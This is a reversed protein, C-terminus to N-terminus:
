SKLTSRYWAYAEELGRRLSIEHRWGLARIRSVDLQKRPTGDPHSADFTLTGRYGVADAVLHAIDLISMDEGTGINVIDAEDYSSMLMLCARALDDVHLLERRPTGTGWLLVTSDGREKAVHMKRILGPVLHSTEPDYNDGPGYLNTPMVSIGKFGFQKRYAHVMAIGAIKATAYADNTGELPGTMLASEHIPQPALRPYICSSGLFLLKKTGHRHAADIVNTQILLNDRIFDAPATANAMIGGVRAAALFVYAPRTEAFFDEVAPMCRLDLAVRTRTVIRFGDAALARVLASGVLGRHGAVYILDSRDM